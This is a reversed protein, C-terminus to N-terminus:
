PRQTDQTACSRAVLTLFLIAYHCLLFRSASFEQFLAHCNGPCGPDGSYGGEPVLDCLQDIYTYGEDEDLHPLLEALDKRLMAACSPELVLVPEDGAFARNRLTRRLVDRAFERM